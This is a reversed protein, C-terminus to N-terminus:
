RCTSCPATGDPAPAMLTSERTSPFLNTQSISTEHIVWSSLCESFYSNDCRSFILWIGLILTRPAPIDFSFLVCSNKRLSAEAGVARNLEGAAAATPGAWSGLHLKPKDYCSSFTSLANGIRNAILSCTSRRSFMQWKTRM